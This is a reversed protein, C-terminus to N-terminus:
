IKLKTGPGGTGSIKQHIPCIGSIYCMSHFYVVGYAQLLFYNELEFMWMDHIEFQKYLECSFFGLFGFDFLFVVGLGFGGM